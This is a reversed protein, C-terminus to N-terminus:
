DSVISIKTDAAVTQGAVALRSKEPGAFETGTDHLQAAGVKDILGDLMFVFVFM